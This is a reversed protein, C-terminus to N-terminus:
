EEKVKVGVDATIHRINDTSIETDSLMFNLLPMKYAEWEMRSLPMFFIFGFTSFTAPVNIVVFYIHLVYM